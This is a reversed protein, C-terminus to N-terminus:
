QGYIKELLFEAIRQGSKGDLKWCLDERLKQRGEKDLGPNQLYNNIATKLEEPSKVMKVGGSRLVLQYNALEYWKLASVARPRKQFGDFAINIVPKDFCVADLSLTSCSTVMLDCHFLHNALLKMDEWSPDWGRSFLSSIRDPRDLVAFPFMAFRAFRNQPLSLERFHRRVLLICPEIIKKEAIMQHIIEAAEDDYPFAFGESGFFIIKKELPIGMMKCYQNRELFIDKQQYIDFQPVGTITIKSEQCDQLTILNQKMKENWVLFFDPLAILLYKDLNDWSKAMGVSPVDKRKATRLFALDAPDHLINTIFVLDPQYKEFLSCLSKDYRAFFKLDVYRCVRKLFALKSLPTFFLIGFFWSLPNNKHRRSNGYRLYLWTSSTMVLYKMLPYLFFHRFAGARVPCKLDELVVNPGSFEEKFYGDAERPTVLVIKLDSQAKLIKFVDTRLINRAVIGTPISILITKM